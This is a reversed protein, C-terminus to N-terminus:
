LSVFTGKNDGEAENGFSFFGFPRSRSFFWELANIIFNNIMRFATLFRGRLGAM